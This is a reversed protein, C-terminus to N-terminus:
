APAARRRLWARLSLYFTVAAMLGLGIYTWQTRRAAEGAVTEVAPGVVNQAAVEALDRTGDVFPQPNALFAALATGVALAGKNRWVFEMARDGHRGIVTLVEQTRGIKALEGSQEMMALRRANQSSTLASLAEAAPKQHAAVALALRRSDEVIWLAEDGHRGLLSAATAAHEGANEVAVVGRPGARRAAELADDGYRTALNDLRRSLTEVTEEGLEKGFKKFILEAAERAAVTHPGALAREAANLAVLMALCGAVLAARQSV